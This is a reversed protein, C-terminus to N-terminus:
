FTKGYLLYAIILHIILSVFNVFVFYWHKNKHRKTYMAIIGGIAGFFVSMLLLTKEKTRWKGKEAKKKDMAYAMYTILSMIGVVILCIIFLNTM